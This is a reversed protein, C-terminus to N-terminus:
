FECEKVIIRHVNEIAGQWASWHGRNDKDFTGEILVYKRDYEVPGSPGEYPVAARDFSVWLGNLTLGHRAHERCLYIASGEFEIRLFGEVQVPKRHYRDPHALIHIISTNFENNPYRVVADAGGQASQRVLDEPLGASSPLEEDPVTPPWASPQGCGLLSILAMTPLLLPLGVAQSIESRYRLTSALDGVRCRNDRLNKTSM